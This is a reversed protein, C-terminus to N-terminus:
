GAGGGISKMRGCGMILRALMVWGGSDWRGSCDFWGGALILGYAAGGDAGAGIGCALGGAGWCGAWVDSWLRGVIRRSRRRGRNVVGGGGSFWRGPSVVTRSRM